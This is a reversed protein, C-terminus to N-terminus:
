VDTWDTDEDITEFNVTQMDHLSPRKTEADEQERRVMKGTEVMSADSVPTGHLTSAILEALAKPDQGRVEIEIMDVRRDAHIGFRKEEASVFVASGAESHTGAQFRTAGTSSNTRCSVDRLRQLAGEIAAGMFSVFRVM